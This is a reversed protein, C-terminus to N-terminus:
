ESINPNKWLIFSNSIRHFHCLSVHLIMKERTPYFAIKKHKSYNCQNYLTSIPNSPACCCPCRLLVPSSQLPIVGIHYLDFCFLFAYDGLLFTYDGLFVTKSEALLM